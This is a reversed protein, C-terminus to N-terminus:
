RALARGGFGSRTALQRERLRSGKSLRRCLGTVPKTSSVPLLRDGFVTRLAAVEARDNLPTGTGHANVYGVERGGAAPSEIGAMTLARRMAGALAGGDESLGTKGAGDHM